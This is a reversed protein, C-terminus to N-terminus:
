FDDFFYGYEGDLEVECADFGVFFFSHKQVACFSGDITEDLFIEGIGERTDREFFGVFFLFDM